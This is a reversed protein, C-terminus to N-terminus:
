VKINVYNGLKERPDSIHDVGASQIMKLVMQGEIEQQNKALGASLLEAGTGYKSQAANATSSMTITM